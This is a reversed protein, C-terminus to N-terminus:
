QKDYYKRGSDPCFFTRIYGDTSLVVFANASELYFCTDGDEKEIKHLTDPHHIVLNAAAEYDEKSAFGMEIGHKDYHESLLKNNRFTYDDPFEDYNWAIDDTGPEEDPVTAPEEVDGTEGAPAPSPEYATESVRDFVMKAGIFAIVLLVILLIIKVKSSM